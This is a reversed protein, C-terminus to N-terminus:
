TPLLRVIGNISASRIRRDRVTMYVSPTIWRLKINIIKIPPLKLNARMHTTGGILKPSDNKFPVFREISVVQISSLHNIVLEVGDGQVHNM